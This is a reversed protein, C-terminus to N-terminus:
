KGPHWAFATELSSASGVIVSITHIGPTLPIKRGPGREDPFFDAVALRHHWRGKPPILPIAGAWRVMLRPYVKGDLRIAEQLFVNLGDTRESSTNTFQLRLEPGAMGPFFSPMTTVTGAPVPNRRWLASEPSSPVPPRAQGLWLLVALLTNLQPQIM